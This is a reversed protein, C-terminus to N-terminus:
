RALEMLENLERVVIEWCTSSGCAIQARGRFGPRLLAALDDVVQADDLAARVEYSTTLPQLGSPTQQTEIEGGAASLLQAPVDEAKLRAIERVTGTVMARPFADLKMRVKQGVAVLAVDTQEVIMVAELENSPQIDCLGAGVPLTTGLNEPDLPTRSWRELERYGHTERTHPEVLPVPIVRGGCEARVVLREREERRSRLQERVGAILERVAAEDGPQDLAALRAASVDLARLRAELSAILLDLEPSTLRVLVDGTRVLTGPRVEVAELRGTVPVHVPQRGRAEVTFGATVRRPVPIFVAALLLACAALGSLLLRGWRVGSPQGLAQRVRMVHRGLPVVFLQVAVVLALMVSVSGLDYPRLVRYFFWLITVCLFWKYLFALVAYTLFLGRRGGTLPGPADSVSLGLFVRDIFAQLVQQSRARLNPIELLDSLVYYGDFRMLPNANLLFTNLSSLTMIALAVAHVTGQSTNWWVLAAVSAIVLEVYIGAASIAIRRWKNPMTWADTTDCYLCPCFVLLLFGMEHCEGGFHRCTMGHGFEHLVKSAGVAVWLWFLTEFSLFTRLSEQSMRRVFEDAHVLTYGGALLMLGVAAAVAIPSYVWRVRPYLRNLLAQPDFGRFKLYLFDAPLFGRKRRALRQAQRHFMEGHSAGGDVVVLGSSVLRDLFDRIAEEAPRPRGLEREVADCLGSVTRGDILRLLAHEAPPFRFYELSTPNKVVYSVEGGYLQAEIQLDARLRFRPADAGTPAAPSVATSVNM